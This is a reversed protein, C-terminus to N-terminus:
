KPTTAATTTAEPLAPETTTADTTSFNFILFERM